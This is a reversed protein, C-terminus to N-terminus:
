TEQKSIYGRAGARLAREAYSGEAQMSLVLIALKPWRAQIDKIMELGQSNKLVLDIIALDPKCRGIMALAELRDAAEGCVVLNRERNIVQILRERLMPCDDVLVVKARSSPPRPLSIRKTM